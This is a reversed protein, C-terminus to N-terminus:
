QHFDAPPHESLGGDLQQPLEAPVEAQGIQGVHAVELLPLLSAFGEEGGEVHNGDGLGAVESAASTPHTLSSPLMQRHFLYVADDTLALSVAGLEEADETAFGQHISSQQVDEGVVAVAVELEEGIACEEGVVDGALEALCAVDGGDDADLSQLCLAVAATLGISNILACEPSDTSTSLRSEDEADGGANALVVVILQDATLVDLPYGVLSGGIEPVVDISGDSGVGMRLLCKCGLLYQPKTLEKDVLAHVGGDNEDIDIPILLSAGNTGSGCAHAVM